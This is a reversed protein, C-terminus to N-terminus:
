IDSTTINHLKHNIEIIQGRIDPSFVDEYSGIDIQIQSVLNKLDEIEEETIPNELSLEIGTLSNKVIPELFQAWLNLELDKLNNEM